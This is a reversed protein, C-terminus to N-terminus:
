IKINSITMMMMLNSITFTFERGERLIPSILWCGLYNATGASQLATASFM